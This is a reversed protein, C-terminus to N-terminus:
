LRAIYYPLYGGGHAAVVKLAPYRELVGAFILHSLAVTTEAPNGIVNGLYYRSLREGLTCGMPHIFVVAGLAAAAEWFPEHAPDALERDRVRTSVEVGRLGLQQVARELQAVALRPHQLSVAGLGAFRAPHAAVLGAIYENAAAAIREALAEGAWYHYQTPSTSIAQIDVGMAEMDAFRVSLDAFKPQYVPGLTRNHANSEVGMWAAFQAAEARRGDENAVLGEVAQVMVHAHMDIVPNAPAM